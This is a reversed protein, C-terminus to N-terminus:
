DKRRSERNGWVWEVKGAKYPGEWMRLTGRIRTKQGQLTPVKVKGETKKGRPWASFKGGVGVSFGM